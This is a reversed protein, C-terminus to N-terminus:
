ENSPGKKVFLKSTQVYAFGPVAWAAKVEGPSIDFNLWNFNKQTAYEDDGTHYRRLWNKALEDLVAADKPTLFIATPSIVHNEPIGGAKRAVWIALREYPSVKTRKSQFKSIDPLRFSHEFEDATHTDESESEAVVLDKPKVRFQHNNVYAYDQARKGLYTTSGNSILVARDLQPQAELDFRADMEYLVYVTKGLARALDTVKFSELTLDLDGYWIKGEATCVNANFVVLNNPNEFGYRGKSASVMKGRVGLYEVALMEERVANSM